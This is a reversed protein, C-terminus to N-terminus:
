EELKTIAFIIASLKTAEAITTAKKRESLRYCFTDYFKIVSVM